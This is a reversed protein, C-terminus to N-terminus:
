NCTKVRFVEFTVNVTSGIYPSQTLLTAFFTGPNHIRKLLQGTLVYLFPYIFSCSCLLIPVVIYMFRILHKPTYYRQISNRTTGYKTSATPRTLICVALLIYLSVVCWFM